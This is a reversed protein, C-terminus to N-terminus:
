SLVAVRSRPKSFESIGFMIGSYLYTSVLSNAFFPLAAIFCASLGMADKTYYPTFAWVAFNSVVFFIGASITSMLAVSFASVKPMYSGLLAIIAMSFYIAPVLTHYGLVADSIIMALLPALLAIHKQKFSAGCFLAMSLLPTFNPAHPILRALSAGLILLLPMLWYNNKQM